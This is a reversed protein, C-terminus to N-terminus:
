RRKLKEIKKRNKKIRAEVSDMFGDGPIAELVNLTSQGAREIRAAWKKRPTNFAGDAELCLKIRERFPGPNKRAMDDFGNRAEKIISVIAIAGLDNKVEVETKKIEGVKKQIPKGDKGKKVSGDENKATEYKPTIDETVIREATNGIFSTLRELEGPGVLKKETIIEEFIRMEWPKVADKQSFGIKTMVKPQQARAKALRGFVEDALDKGGKTSLTSSAEPPKGRTSGESSQGGTVRNITEDVGRDVFADGISNIFWKVWGSSLTRRLM